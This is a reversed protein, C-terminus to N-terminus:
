GGPGAGSQSTIGLRVYSASTQAVCRRTTRHISKHQRFDDEHLAQGHTGPGIEVQCLCAYRLNDEVNQTSRGSIIHYKCQLTTLPLAHKFARRTM